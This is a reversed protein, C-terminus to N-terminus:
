SILLLNINTFLTSPFGVFACRIYPIVFPDFYKHETLIGHILMNGHCEKEQQPVLMAANQQLQM